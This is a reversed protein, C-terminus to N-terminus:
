GKGPKDGFFKPDPIKVKDGVHFRHSNVLPTSPGWKKIGNAKAIWKWGKTSSYYKKALGYLTTTKTLKHTRPFDKYGYRKRGKGERKVVPDRWEQFQCNLYRADNEGGRETPTFATLVAPMDAWYSSGDEGFIHAAQFRFVLEKETTTILRSVGSRIDGRTTEPWLVFPAWLLVLTDFTITRLNRGGKRSYEGAKITRYTTREAGYAISFEDTPPCQFYYPTKLYGRRTVGRIASLKILLGENRGGPDVESFFSREPHGSRWEPPMMYGPRYKPKRAHLGSQSTLTAM